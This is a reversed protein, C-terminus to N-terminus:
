HIILISQFIFPICKSSPQSYKKLRELRPASQSSRMYKIANKTIIQAIEKLKQVKEFYNQIKIKFNLSNMCNKILNCYKM